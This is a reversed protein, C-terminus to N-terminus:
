QCTRELQDISIIEGSKAKLEDYQDDNVALIVKGRQVVVQIIHNTKKGDPAKDKRNGYGSSTSNFKFEYMWTYQCRLSTSQMFQLDKGDFVFTPSNYKVWNEAALKSLEKTYKAGSSVAGGNTLKISCGTAGLMMAGLSIILLLGVLKNM